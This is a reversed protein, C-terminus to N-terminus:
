QSVHTKKTMPFPLCTLVKYRKILNGATVNGHRSWTYRYKLGDVSLLHLFTLQIFHTICISLNVSIPIGKLILAFMSSRQSFLFAKELTPIPM